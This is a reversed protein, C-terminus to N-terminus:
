RAPPGRAAGPYALQGAVPALGARRPPHGRWTWYRYLLFNPVAGAVFAVVGAVPVAAGALGYVLLFALQACGTAIASGAAYRTSLRWPLSRTRLM